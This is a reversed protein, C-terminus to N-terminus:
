RLILGRSSRVHRVTALMILPPSLNNQQQHFSMLFLEQFVAMVLCHPLLAGM